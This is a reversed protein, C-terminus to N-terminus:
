PIGGYAERQREQKGSKSDVKPPEKASAKQIRALYEDEEHM